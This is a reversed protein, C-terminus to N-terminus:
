NVDKPPDSDADVAADRIAEANGKSAADRVYEKFGAMNYSIYM